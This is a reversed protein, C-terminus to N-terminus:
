RNKRISSYYSAYVVIFWWDVKRNGDMVHAEITFTTTVVKLVEIDKNWMLAMVGARNMAEVAIMEDFRTIAKVKKMYKTRNKTESLYTINPSFLNNAERLQLVTLPSGVGQCNCVMVKM